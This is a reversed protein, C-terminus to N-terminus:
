QTLDEHQPFPLCSCLPPVSASVTSPMMAKLKLLNWSVTFTLSAQRAATWPTVFLRVCSLSPAVAFLRDSSLRNWKKQFM